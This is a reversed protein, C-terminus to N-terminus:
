PRPWPHATINRLMDGIGPTLLASGTSPRCHTRGPQRQTLRKSHQQPQLQQRTTRRRSSLLTIPCDGQWGLRSSSAPRLKTLEM